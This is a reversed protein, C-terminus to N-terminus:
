VIMHFFVAFTPSMCIIQKDTIVYQKTGIVRGYYM